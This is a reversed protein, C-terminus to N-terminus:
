WMTRTLVLFHLANDFYFYNLAPSAPPFFLWAERYNRHSHFGDSDMGQCQEGKIEKTKTFGGLATPTTAASNPTHEHRSGCIWAQATALPYSFPNKRSPQQQSGGTVKIQDEGLGPRLLPAPVGKSSGDPVATFHLQSVCPFDQGRGAATGVLGTGAAPFARRPPDSDAAAVPPTNHCDPSRCSSLLTQSSCCPCPCPSPECVRCWGQRELLQRSFQSLVSIHHPKM